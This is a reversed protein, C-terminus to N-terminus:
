FFLSKVGTSKAAPQHDYSVESECCAVWVDENHNCDTVGWNKSMCQAIDVEQGTCDLDDLWQQGIGGGATYFYGSSFLQMNKLNFVKKRFILNSICAFM